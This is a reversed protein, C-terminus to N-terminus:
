FLLHALGSLSKTVIISLVIVISTIASVITLRRRLRLTARYGDIKSGDPLDPDLYRITSLVEEESVMWKRMPSMETQETHM